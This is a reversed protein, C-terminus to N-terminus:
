QWYSDIFKDEYVHENVHVHVHVLSRPPPHCLDCRLIQCGSVQQRGGGTVLIQPLLPRDTQTHWPM